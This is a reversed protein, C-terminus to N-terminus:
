LICNTYDNEEVKFKIDFDMNEMLWGNNRYFFSSKIDLNWIKIQSQSKLNPGCLILSKAMTHGYDTVKSIIVETVINTINSDTSSLSRKKRKTDSGGGNSSPYITRQYVSNILDNHFQFEELKEKEKFSM